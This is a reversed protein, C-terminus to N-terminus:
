DAEVCKPIARKEAAAPTALTSVIAVVFILVRMMAVRM